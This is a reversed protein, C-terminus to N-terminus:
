RCSDRRSRTAAAVGAALPVPLLPRAARRARTRAATARRADAGGGGLGTPSNAEAYPVPPGGSRDFGCFLEPLRDDEFADAADLMARVLTAGQQRLGYRFLGAAAIVTDHPWVSGHQYSLPNYAPHESSLTRLGWGSFSDPQLLRKAAAAARAATPLGCWLLHGPNSSISTLPRKDGDLALAYFGEDEVCFRREVLERAAERRDRREPPPTTTAGSRSCSPWRSARRTSTARCSSPRWRSRGLAGDAAVIADGADKWGQNYYGDPSRTRYEQLGDGDLDGFRRVLALAARATAFTGDLLQRRRDLAVRAM